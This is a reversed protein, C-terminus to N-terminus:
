MALLYISKLIPYGGSDPSTTCNGWDVKVPKGSVLATSALKMLDSYGPTSTSFHVYPQNLKACPSANAVNASLKVYGFTGRWQVELVQVSSTVAAQGSSSVLTAGALALGALFKKM